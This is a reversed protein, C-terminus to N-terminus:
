LLSAFVGTLYAIYEFLKIVILGTFYIPHKRLLQPKRLYRIPCSTKMALSPNKSVYSILTKGYFYAKLVIKKMSLEEVHHKIEAEVRGIIYGAKEVRRGLDFDEGIVLHEDFGGISHFAERRFFRPAESFKHGLHTEKEIKRCEALFGKGMSLEPIIVADVDKQLCVNICEEIVRPTLETDSDVFYIFAGRAEKAGLNRASSRESALLLVRAHFKKAIQVTDDQSYKDVVIIEINTYTQSKISRLCSVLTESSNFTPIVISVM